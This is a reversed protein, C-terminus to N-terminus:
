CLGIVSPARLTSRPEDGETTTLGAKITSAGNDLVLVPQMLTPISDRGRWM